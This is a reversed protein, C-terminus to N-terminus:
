RFHLTFTSLKQNCKRYNRTANDILTVCFTSIDRRIMISRYSVGYYNVDSEMPFDTRGMFKRIFSSNTGYLYLHKAIHDAVYNKGTGPTGHFSLVLPKTSTGLHNYHSRLAAVLRDHVIHQGYVNEALDNSLETSVFFHQFENPM